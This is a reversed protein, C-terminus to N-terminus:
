RREVLTRVCRTQPVSMKRADHEQHELRDEQPRLREHVQDVRSCSHAAFPTSDASPRPGARPREQGVADDLADAAHEDEQRLDQDQERKM